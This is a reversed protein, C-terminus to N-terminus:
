FQKCKLGKIKSEHKHNIEYIQRSGYKNEEGKPPIQLSRINNKNKNNNKKFIPLTSSIDMDKQM